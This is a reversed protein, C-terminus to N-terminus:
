ATGPTKPDHHNNAGTGPYDTSELDMRGNIYGEGFDIVQEEGLNLGVADQTLSDEVSSPIEEFSKLGRTSPVALSSFVFSFGLFLLLLNLSLFCKHVMILLSSFLFNISSLFDSIPLCLM